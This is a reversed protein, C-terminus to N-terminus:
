GNTSVVVRWVIGGEPKYVFKVETWIGRLVLKIFVELFHDVIQLVQGPLLMM